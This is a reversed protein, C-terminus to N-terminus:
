KNKQSLLYILFKEENELKKRWKKIDKKHELILKGADKIQNEVRIQHSYTGCDNYIRQSERQFADLEKVQKESHDIRFKYIDIMARLQTETKM